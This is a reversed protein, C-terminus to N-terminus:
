KILIRLSSESDISPILRDRSILVCSKVSANADLSRLCLIGSCDRESESARSWLFHRHKKGSSFFGSAVVDRFAAAISNFRRFYFCAVRYEEKEMPKKQELGREILPSDIYRERSAARRRQLRIIIRSRRHKQGGRSKEENVAKPRLPPM